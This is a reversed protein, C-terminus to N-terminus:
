FSCCPIQRRKGGFAPLLKKGGFGPVFKTWWISSVIAVLDLYCIKAVLLDMLRWIWTAFKFVGFAPLLGKGGFGPLLRKSGFGPYM